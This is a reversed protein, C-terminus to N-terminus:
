ITIIIAGLFFCYADELLVALGRGSGAPAKRKLPDGRLLRRSRAPAM